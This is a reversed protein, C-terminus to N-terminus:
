PPSGSITAPMMSSTGLRDDKQLSVANVGLGRHGYQGSTQGTVSNELSLGAVHERTVELGAEPDVQVVLVHADDGGRGALAVDDDREARQLSLQDCGYPGLAVAVEVVRGQKTPDLPERSTDASAQSRRWVGEAEHTLNGVMPSLERGSARLEVQFGGSTPFKIVSLPCAVRTNSAGSLNLPERVAASTASASAAPM